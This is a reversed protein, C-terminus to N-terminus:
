GGCPRERPMVLRGRGHEVHDRLQHRRRLAAAGVGVRAPDRARVADDHGHVSPDLAQVGVLGLSDAHAHARAAAPAERPRRVDGAGAGLAGQGPRQRDGLGLGRRRGRRQRDDLGRLAVPRPGSRDIGELDREVLLHRQQHCGALRHPDVRPDHPGVREREGHPRALREGGGLAGGAGLLEGLRAPADCAIARASPRSWRRENGPPCM